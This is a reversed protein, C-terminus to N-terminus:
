RGVGPLLELPSDTRAPIRDHAVRRPPIRSAIATAWPLKSFSFGQKSPRADDEPCIKSMNKLIRKIPPCM